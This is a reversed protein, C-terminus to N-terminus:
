AILAFYFAVGEAGDARDVSRKLASPVDPPGETRCPPASHYVVVNLGVLGLVLVVGIAKALKGRRM